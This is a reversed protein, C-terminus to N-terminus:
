LLGLCTWDADRERLSEAGSGSSPPLGCEDDSRETALCVIRIAKSDLRRMNIPLMGVPVLPDPGVPLGMM